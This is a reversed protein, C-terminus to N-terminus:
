QCPKDPKTRETFIYDCFKKYIERPKIKFCLKFDIKGLKEATYIKKDYTNM